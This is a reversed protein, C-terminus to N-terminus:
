QAFQIKQGMTTGKLTGITVNQGDCTVTLNFSLPWTRDKSKLLIKSFDTRTSYVGTVGLDM